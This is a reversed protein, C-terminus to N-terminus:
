PKTFQALLDFQVEGVSPKAPEIKVVLDGFVRHEETL